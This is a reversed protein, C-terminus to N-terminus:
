QVDRRVFLHFHDDVQLLERVAPDTFTPERVSLEYGAAEILPQFDRQSGDTETSRMGDPENPVVLLWKVQLQRLRNLWWAVVEHTCESFSHINIALDFTGPQLGNQQENLPVVRTPKCGRYDLYYESLFTSEPVADVCCYDTLGPVAQAMRYALRGYGAGIDLVRLGSRELIGIQRELFMIENVSDLLDRSVRGLGPYEFSWCGFAGDEGLKSLLGPTDLAQVYRAYIFYKLVTARPWERYQWIYPNDGRFYRSDLSNNLREQTWQSRSNAPLGLASYQSRLAQLRPADDALRQESDAPLAVADDHSATLLKREIATLRPLLYSMWQDVLRQQPGEVWYKIRRWSGKLARSPLSNM